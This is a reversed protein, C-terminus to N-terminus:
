RVTVRVYGKRGKHKVQKQETFFDYLEPEADKFSKEDFVTKTEYWPEEAEVLTLKVTGTDLSKVECANMAEYLQSLAEKKKKELDKLARLKEELEAVENILPALTQEDKATLDSM